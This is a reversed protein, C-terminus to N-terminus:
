IKVIEIDFICFRKDFLAVESGLEATQCISVDVGHSANESLNEWM